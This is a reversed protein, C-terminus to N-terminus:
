WPLLAFMIRMAWRTSSARSTFSKPMKKDIPITFGEDDIDEAIEEAIWEINEIFDQNSLGAHNGKSLANEVTNVLGSPIRGQSCLMARALYLIEGANIGM